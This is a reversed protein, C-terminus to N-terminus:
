ITETDQENACSAVASMSSWLIECVNIISLNGVCHCDFQSVSFLVACYFCAMFRVKELPELQLRIQEQRALLLRQQTKYYQESNITQYLTAVLHRVDDSATSIPRRPEGACLVVHITVVATCYGCTCSPVLKHQWPLQNSSAGLGPVWPSLSCRAQNTHFFITEDTGM